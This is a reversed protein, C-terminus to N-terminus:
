NAPTSRRDGCSLSRLAAENLAIVEAERSEDTVNTDLEPSIGGPFGSTAQFLWEDRLAPMWEALVDLADIERILLHLWLALDSDVVWFGYGQYEVFSRSM